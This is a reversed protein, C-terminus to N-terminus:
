PQSSSGSVQETKSHAHHNAPKVDPYYLRVLHEPSDGFFYRLRLQWMFLITKITGNKQWRRASTTVKAHFCIPKQLKKLRTSLEIDEMLPQIPIGGIQRWLQRSVFISQDGTAIGTLRSRLNMMHGVLALLGKREDLQVDFRGWCPQANAIPALLSLADPPLTSDCHHFLLLHGEAHEAGANMQLARGKPSHLLKDCLPQAIHVSQDTSGGDVVILEHGEVRFAQLAQLHLALGEAENLVPVIISIM